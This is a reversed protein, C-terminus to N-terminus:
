DASPAVVPNIYIRPYLTSPDLPRIVKPPRSKLGVKARQKVVTAKAYTTQKQMTALRRTKVLGM